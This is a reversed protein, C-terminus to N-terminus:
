VNNIKGLACFAEVGGYMLGCGIFGPGSGTWQYAVTLVRVRCDDVRRMASTFFGSFM